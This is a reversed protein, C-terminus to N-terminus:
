RREPDKRVTFLIPVEARFGLDQTGQGVDFKLVAERKGSETAMLDLVLYEIRDGDLRKPKSSHTFITAALWHGTAKEGQGILQPGSLRLPHTVGAENIIKVLMAVHHNWPLTAPAPGRAAKVRSEPNISIVVLCHPDLLKQIKVAQENPDASHPVLLAQLQKTTDKPLPRKQVALDALTTLCDHRFRPWNVAESVPADDASVLVFLLCVCVLASRM